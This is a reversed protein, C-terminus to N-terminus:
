TVRHHAPYEDLGAIGTDVLEGDAAEGAQGLSGDDFESGTGTGQSGDDASGAHKSACGASGLAIVGIAIVIAGFRRKM